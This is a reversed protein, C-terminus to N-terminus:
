HGPRDPRDVHDPHEPHDPHDPHDPRDLHDVRDPHHEMAEGHGREAKEQQLTERMEHHAHHAASVVPGLKFGLDKAIKGWGEGSSRLSEVKVLADSTMPYTKPDSASLKQAMSLGITVEGWGQGQNRLNQVTSEPVKFQKALRDIKQADTGADKDKDIQQAESDLRTEDADMARSPSAVLTMSALGLLLTSAYIKM